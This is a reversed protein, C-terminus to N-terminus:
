ELLSQTNSIVMCYKSEFVDNINSDNIITEAKSSLYFTSYKTKGHCKQKMLQLVSTTLLKSGKLEMLLHKLINKIIFQTDKFQLKSNFSNSIKM